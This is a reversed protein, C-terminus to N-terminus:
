IEPILNAPIEDIFTSYTDILKNIFALSEFFLDGEDYRNNGILLVINETTYSVTEEDNVTTKVATTFMNAVTKDGKGNLASLRLGFYGSQIVEDKYIVQEEKYFLEPHRQLVLKLVTANKYIAKIRKIENRAGTNYANEKEFRTDGGRTANFNKRIKQENFNGTEDVFGNSKVYTLADEIYANIERASNTKIYSSYLGDDKDALVFVDDEGLEVYTNMMYASSYGADQIRMNTTRLIDYSFGYNEVDEDMVSQAFLLGEDGIVINDALLLYFDQGSSPKKAVANFVILLAFVVILVSAILKVADYVFFTKLRQKTIKNDM